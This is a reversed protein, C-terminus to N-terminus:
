KVHHGRINEFHIKKVLGLNDWCSMMGKKIGLAARFRVKGFLWSLALDSIRDNRCRFCIKTQKEPLKAVLNEDNRLLSVM